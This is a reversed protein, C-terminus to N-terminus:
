QHKVIETTQKSPGAAHRILEGIMRIMDKTSGPTTVRQKPTLLGSVAIGSIGTELIPGIDRLTIGGIAIVPINTKLQQLTEMIQSYGDLGLVPALNKKTTTFRFPGLGIYDVGERQLRDIDELTNATGGIIAEPGLINRAEAPPLDNNGLHVGDAGIARAVSVGDDIILVAGYRTCIDRAKGATDFIERETHDKMRLQIWKGGSICVEQIHQLHEEPSKGTSIYQLAIHEAKRKAPDALLFRYTYEKALICSQLLDYGRALYSAIGASLVCGSGHRNVDLINRPLLTASIADKFYLIDTGKQADSRHGGKLLLPCRSSIDSIAKKINGNEAIARLEDYNPTVLSCMEFIDSLGGVSLNRHFTYGSGSKLVPDWIIDTEPSVEHIMRIIQRLIDPNEIIGIKAVRVPYSNLLLQLQDLIIGPDTWYCQEFTLDNQVTLATCVSLGTGGLANITSLDATMGAGSCPDHGAITLVYSTTMTKM